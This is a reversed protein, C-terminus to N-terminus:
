KAADAVAQAATNVANTVAASTITAGSIADVDQKLTLPPQKGIFQGTFAPEKAKAGLGATEAFKSGGVNLGTIAGNVDIGVTVEVPGGYGNATITATYGVTAGGALGRYLADVASDGTLAEFTEAAPLVSVRAEDAAKASAAAIPGVTVSNTLALMLAAILSIFTLIAFPPFKKKM